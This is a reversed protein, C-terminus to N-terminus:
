PKYEAYWYFVHTGGGAYTITFTTAAVASVYIDTLGTESATVIVSTPTSALGHNVTAGSAIAETIGSNETVWGVNHAVTCNTQWISQNTAGSIMNGVIVSSSNMAGAVLIGFAMLPEDAYDASVDAIVNGVITLNLNHGEAYIGAGGADGTFNEQNVNIINNGVILNRGNSTIGHRDPWIIHNGEVLIGYEKVYIASGSMWVAKSPDAPNEVYPDKVPNVKATELENGIIRGGWSSVVINYDYTMSIWNNIVTSVWCGIDLYIGVGSAKQPYFVNGIDNGYGLTRIANREIIIDSIGGGTLYGSQLNSVAYIGHGGHRTFTCDSIRVGHTNNIFVGGGSYWTNDTPDEFPVNEKGGDLAISQLGGGVMVNKGEPPYFNIMFRNSPFDATAQLTMGDNPLLANIQDIFGWTYGEGELYVANKTINLPADLLYEGRKFYILGGTTPLDDIVSQIIQSANTGSYKLQGNADKAFYNAGERWITYSPAGPYVGSSIYFTSSPTSAFAYFFLSTLLISIGVFILATKVNIQKPIKM